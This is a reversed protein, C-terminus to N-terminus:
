DNLSYRCFIQSNSPSLAKISSRSFLRFNKAMQFNNFISVDTDIPLKLNMWSSEKLNRHQFSFSNTFKRFLQSCVLDTFSFKIFFDLFYAILVVYNKLSSKKSSLFFSSCNRFTEFRSPTYTEPFLIKSFKCGYAIQRNFATKVPAYLFQLLFRLLFM